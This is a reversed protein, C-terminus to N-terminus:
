RFKNFSFTEETKRKGGNKGKMLKGWKGENGVGDENRRLNKMEEPRRVRRRLQFKEREHNGGCSGYQVEKSSVKKTM